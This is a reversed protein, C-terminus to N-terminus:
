GHRVETPQGCCCTHCHRKPRPEHTGAPHLRFRWIGDRETPEADVRHSGHKAKRFDRVRAQLGTPITHIGYRVELLAELEAVQYWKGDSMIERLAERQSAHTRGRRQFEFIPVDSTSM